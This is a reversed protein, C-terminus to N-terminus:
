AIETIQLLHPNTFLKGTIARTYRNNAVQNNANLIAIAIYINTEMLLVRQLPEKLSKFLFPESDIM